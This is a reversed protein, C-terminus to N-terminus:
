GKLYSCSLLPHSGDGFKRCIHPRHEYINCKYDARLFPCKNHMLSVSTSVYESPPFEVNCPAPSTGIVANVIKDAFQTLMGVPLAINYCCAAKCKYTRCKSM